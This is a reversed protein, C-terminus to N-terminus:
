RFLRVKEKNRLVLTEKLEFVLNLDSKIEILNFYCLLESCYM